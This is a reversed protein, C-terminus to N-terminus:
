RSKDRKKNGGGWLIKEDSLAHEPLKNGYELLRQIGKMCKWEEDGMREIRYLTM